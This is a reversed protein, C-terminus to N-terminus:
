SLRIKLETPAAEKFIEERNGSLPPYILKQNIYQKIKKGDEGQSQPVRDWGNTVLAGWPGLDLCTNYIEQKYPIGEL